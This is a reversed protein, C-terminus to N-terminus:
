LVVMAPNRVSAAFGEIPAFTEPWSKLQKLRGLWAQVNPYPTFDGGFIEAMAVISAGFFDAITMHSGCLYPNAGLLDDNLVRMWRRSQDLGKRLKEAQGEASEMKIHDFLQPYVLCFNLERRMQTNIWDMRENVRARAQLNTPYLSSGAKEALYKLIASCETLRFDGDDLAPVLQNPNIGTYYEDYNAHTMIDVLEMEIETGTEGIYLMVPRSTTSAPHYYLKM